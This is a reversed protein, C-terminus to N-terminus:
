LVVMETTVELIEGLDSEEVLDIIKEALSEVLKTENGVVAYGLVARQWKDNLTIEHVSIKFKAFIKDKLTRLVQRKQKLSQCYPLFLEFKVLVSKMSHQPEINM